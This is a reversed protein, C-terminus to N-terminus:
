LSKGTMAQAKLTANFFDDGLVLYIPKREHVIRPTKIKKKKAYHHGTTLIRKTFIM